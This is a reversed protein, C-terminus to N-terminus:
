APTVTTLLGASIPAVTAFTIPAHRLARQGDDLGVGDGLTGGARDERLDLLRAELHEGGLENLHREVLRRAEVGDVARPGEELAEAREHRLARADRHHELGVVADLLPAIEHAGGIGGLRRGAGDALLEGRGDLGVGDVVFYAVIIVVIVGVGVLLLITGVELAEARAPTVATLLLAVVLMLAIMRYPIMDM